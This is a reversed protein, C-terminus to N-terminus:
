VKGFLYITGYKEFIDLWFMHLSGDPEFFTDGDLSPQELSTTAAATECSKSNVSQQIKLWDTKNKELDSEVKVTVKKTPLQASESATSQFDVPSSEKKGLEQKTETAILHDGQHSIAGTSEIQDEIHHEYTEM